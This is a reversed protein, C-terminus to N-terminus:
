LQWGGEDNGEDDSEEDDDDFEDREFDEDDEFEDLDDDDDQLRINSALAHRM